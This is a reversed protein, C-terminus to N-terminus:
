MSTKLEEWYKNYLATAEDGVDEQFEGKSIIAQSPFIIPNNRTEEDLLELADKNPTAYGIYDVTRAAIEPRLMFNIFQHAADKHEANAPIAFSDVWLIVGESPYIYDIEPMEEQAMIVEGNWIMGLNVDGAMYPERPADSNFTLVNPMLTKLLQYAQEIEKPDRTNASHGQIALAMQFVERVDDTLLLSGLWKSDWLDNWSTISSKEIEDTNIGIGTSGWTYPISYQNGKDYPKNLLSTDLHKLNSLKSQDIKALLGERAMKSIYYSSPVVIDYGKANQIKIKSYMVENSEYTNYEVEIGTAETFEELVGDPIYESWNYIVVKDAANAAVAALLAAAASVNRFLSTLTM